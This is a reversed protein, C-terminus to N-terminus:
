RHWTKTLFRYFLQYANFTNGLKRIKIAMWFCNVSLSTALLYVETNFIKQLWNHCCTLLFKSANSTVVSMESFFLSNRRVQHWLLRCFIKFMFTQKNAVARGNNKSALLYCIYIFLTIAVKFAYWSELLEGLWFMSCIASRLSLVIHECDLVAGHIYYDTGKAAIIIIIIM